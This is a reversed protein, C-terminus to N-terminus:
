YRITSEAFSVAGDMILVLGLIWYTVPGPFPTRQVCEILGGGITNYCVEQSLGLVLLLIGLGIITMDWLQRTAKSKKQEMAAWRDEVAQREWETGREMYPQVDFYVIVIERVGRALTPHLDRTLEVYKRVVLNCVLSTCLYNTGHVM